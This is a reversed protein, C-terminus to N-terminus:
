KDSNIMGDLEFEVTSIELLPSETPVFDREGKMEHIVQRTPKMKQQEFSNRIRTGGFTKVGVNNEERWELVCHNM